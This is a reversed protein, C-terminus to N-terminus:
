FKGYCGMKRNVNIKSGTKLSAHTNITYFRPFSFAKALSKKFAM